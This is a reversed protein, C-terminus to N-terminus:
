DGHGGKRAATEPRVVVSCISCLRSRTKVGALSSGPYQVEPLPERRALMTQTAATSSPRTHPASPRCRHILSSIEDLWHHEAM